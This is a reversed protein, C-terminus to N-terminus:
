IDVVFREKRIARRQILSYVSFGFGGLALCGCILWIGTMIDAGFVEFLYEISILLSLAFLSYSTVTVSKMFWIYNKRIRDAQIKLGKNSIRDRWNSSVMGGQSHVNRIIRDLEVDKDPKFEIVFVRLMRWADGMSLISLFLLLLPLAIFVWLFLLLIIILIAVGIILLIEAGALAIEGALHVFVEAADGALSGKKKKKKDAPGTATKAKPKKMVKKEDVHQESGFFGINGIIKLMSIKTIRVEDRKVGQRLMIEKIKGETLGQIIGDPTGSVEVMQDIICPNRNNYPKRRPMSLECVLANFSGDQASNIGEMRVGLRKAALRYRNPKTARVSDGTTHKGHEVGWWVPVDFKGMSVIVPVWALM